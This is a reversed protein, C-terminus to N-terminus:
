LRELEFIKGVNNLDEASKISNELMVPKLQLVPGEEDSDEVDLTSDAEERSEGISPSIATVSKSKSNRINFSPIKISEENFPVPEPVSNKLEEMPLKKVINLVEELNLPIFEKEESTTKEKTTMDQRIVKILNNNFEEYEDNELGMHEVVSIQDHDFLAVDDGALNGEPFLIGVYDYIKERDDPLMSCYGTIMLKKTADKLLVVTGIPLYKEKM